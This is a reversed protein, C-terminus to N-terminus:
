EKITLKTECTPCKVTVPRQASKISLVSSCKPCKIKVATPAAAPAPKSAAPKERAPAEKQVSKPGPRPRPPRPAAAAPTDDWGADDDGGGWEDEDDSKKFMFIAGGIGGIIVIVILIPFIIPMGDDSEPDGDGGSSREVTLQLTFNNNTDDKELISNSPDIRVDITNPEGYVASLWDFVIEKTAGAAVTAGSNTAIRTSGSSHFAAVTMTETVDGINEITAVIKLKDGEKAKTVVADGENKVVVSIVRFDSLKNVTVDLSEENNSLDGEGDQAEIEVILEYDTSGETAEPIWSFFVVKTTGAPLDILEFTVRNAGNKEDLYIALEVGSVDMTGSNRVSVTINTEIGEGINDTLGNQHLAIGTVSLEPYPIDQILISMSTDVIENGVSDSITMRIDYSKPNLGTTDWLVYYITGEQILDEQFTGRTGPTGGSIQVNGTLNDEDSEVFIKVIDGVFYSNDGDEGVESGFEIINPPFIDKEVIEFIETENVNWVNDAVSCKLYLYFTDWEDTHNLWDENIEGTYAGDEIIDNELDRWNQHSTPTGEEGLAYQFKNHLSADDDIGTDVDSLQVSITVSGETEYTIDPIDWPDIQPNVADIFVDASQIDEENGKRDVSYYEFTHPGHTDITFPDEYEEWVGEDIRYMTQDVGSGEAGGDFDDDWTLTIEVERGWVKDEGDTYQGLYKFTHGTTPAYNDIMFQDTEDAVQNDDLYEVRVQYYAGNEGSTDWTPISGDNADVTDLTEWPDKGNTYSIEVQDDDDFNEAQWTINISTTHIKEDDPSEILIVKNLDYRVFLEFLNIKGASESTVTLPVHVNGEGDRDDQHDQLYTNLPKTFDNVRVEFDYEIILENLLVLGATDSTVRFYVYVMENNYSDKWSIANDIADNLANVFSSGSFTQPSDDETFEGPWEWEITNDDGVDLEVNSPYSDVTHRHLIDSDYGSGSVNGDDEWCLHFTNDTGIGVTPNTAYLSDETEIQTNEQWSGGGDPSATIYLISGDAFGVVIDEGESDLELTSPYEDGIRYPRTWTENDGTSSKSFYLYSEQWIVYIDDGVDIKPYYSYTTSQSIVVHDANWSTGSNTSKRFIIDYDAGSGDIDGSDYWVVYVNSGEATVDPRYSDRDNEDESVVTTSAAPNGGTIRKYCIDYEQTGDGDINGLEQWVVHGTSGSAAVRPSYSESDNPDDSILNVPGWNQGGNSSYRVYVDSDTDDQNGGGQYAEWVVYINSGSVAIHPEESQVDDADDSIVVYDSWSDGDYHSYLIDRDVGNEIGSVNGQEQWVVYIDDGDVVMSPYNSDGDFLESSILIEDGWSVGQNSSARIAVDLNNLISSHDYMDYAIYVHGDDNATMAPGMGNNPTIQQSPSFTEENTSKTYSINGDGEGWAVYVNTVGSQRESSIAASSIRQDSDDIIKPDSWDTEDSGHNTAYAYFVDSVGTFDNAEMWVTYVHGNDDSALDPSNKSNADSAIEVPTKPWSAGNDSSYKSMIYYTGDERNQQVWVVYVDSDYSAIWSDTSYDNNSGSETLTTTEWKEDGTKRSFDIRGSYEWTLYFYNESVSPIPYSNYDFSGDMREVPGWTLGGDESIRYFVDLMLMGNETWVVIVNDGSVAVQPTFQLQNSSESLRIADDWNDGNNSSRKFFVDIDLGGYDLDGDDGWVVYVNDGESAISPNQGWSTILTNQSVVEPISMTGASKSGSIDMTASTVTANKPLIISKTKEEDGGFSAGFSRSDDSFVNQQALNGYGTGNYNWIVSREREDEILLTPHFPYIGGNADGSITLYADEVEAEYPLKITTENNRGKDPFTIQKSTSGDGFEDTTDASVLTGGPIAALAMFIIIACSLLKMSNNM